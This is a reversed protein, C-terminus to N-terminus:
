GQIRQGRADLLWGSGASLLDGGLTVLRLALALLAAEGQGLVLGLEWTLVAERVGTGAPAGPTFTGAIWALAYAWVLHGFTPATQPWIMAQLFFLLSGTAVFFIVHLILAPGMLEIWRWPSASPLSSLFRSGRGARRLGRELWFWLLGIMVFSALLVGLALPEGRFALRFSGIVLFAGLVLSLTETVHAAFLASHPLGVTRGLAHRGVYHFVNGPLYKAIQSRTWIAYGEALRPRQGYFGLLWWWAVALLGLVVAYGGALGALLIPLRGGLPPLDLSSVERVLSHVVWGLALISLLLGLGGVLRRRQEQAETM